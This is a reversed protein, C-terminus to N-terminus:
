TTAKELARRLSVRRKTLAERSSKTGPDDCDLLGLSAACEIEELAEDEQGLRKLAISLRNFVSLLDRRVIDRELPDEAVELYRLIAERYLAVARAPDTKELSKATRVWEAAERLRNLPEDELARRARQYEDVAQAAVRLRNQTAYELFSRVDDPSLSALEYTVRCRCGEASVCAPNPTWSDAESATTTTRGHLAGCAACTSHDGQAAYVARITRARAMEAQGNSGPATASVEAHGDRDVLLELEGRCAACLPTGDVDVLPGPHGCIACAASAPPSPADPRAGCVPCFTASDGMSLGCQDCIRM